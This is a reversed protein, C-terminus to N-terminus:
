GQKHVEGLAQHVRAKDMCLAALENEQDKRGGAILREYVALAQEYRALDVGAQERRARVQQPERTETVAPERGEARAARALWEGPDTWDAKDNSDDRKKGFMRSLWGFIGAM